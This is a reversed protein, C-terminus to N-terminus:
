SANRTDSSPLANMHHVVYDAAREGSRICDPIGVGRYSAGALALGPIRATQVEIQAVRALHGVNHQPMARDFRNIRTLEPQASIGMVEGMEARAVDLLEEDSASIFSGRGAGGMFLRFLAHGDPARGRFKASTWTCALVPRELIRPVIYGTADLARPVDPQRYALSITVTSGFEIEELLRSVHGDVTRLLASTVYAPTALVVAQASIRTNDGLTLAFDGGSEPAEPLWPATREIRAVRAGTLTTVRAGNRPREGVHREVAEVLEGLGHPFSLFGPPTAPSSGADREARSRRRAALMGRILGGHQREYARLQPFMAEMSLQAGDGASIGSLLPEVINTYMERGLRRVVFNEVSEDVGDTRAAIFYDMAVRLKGAPSVLPTTVFPGLRSPVLGTLGDPIRRLGRASLIYAGNVAPDTGQLRTGLGIREALEVAAPKASLFVDPGAEMVFGDVRDTRINGGLGDRAEILTVDLWPAVRTLRELAALGTIGGGVIVVHGTM